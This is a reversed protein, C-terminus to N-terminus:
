PEPACLMRWAPIRDRMGIKELFVYDLGDILSQTRRLVAAGNAFADAIHTVAVAGFGQDAKLAPSHHFAVADIITDPLGWLGLLYAGVAAHTTGLLPMEASIMDCRHRKMHRIVAKYSAPLHAALLLKGTDHLMGAMFALDIAKRDMGSSQAITKAIAATTMAHTWMQEISIGHLKLRKYQDFIGAALVFAQILDLGLLSVAKVPNVIRQSFGFYSSNVLKLLKTVLGLDGALLDAVTKISAEESELVEILELYHAPLSPLSDTRAVVQKLAENALLDKIFIARAITAKLDADDCPKSLFQHALDVSQLIITRDVYGSLIIRVTQPYRNRVTELFDHGSGGAFVMETIVIDVTERAMLALGETPHAVFHIRWLDRMDRFSRQLAKHVFRESDVFLISQLM